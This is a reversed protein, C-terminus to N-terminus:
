RPIGLLKYHLAAREEFRAIKLAFAAEAKAELEEAALIEQEVQQQRYTESLGVAGPLCADFTSVWAWSFLWLM